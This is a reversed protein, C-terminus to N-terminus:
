VASDTAKEYLGSIAWTENARVLGGSKQNIPSAALAIGFLLRPSQITAPCDSGFFLLGISSLWVDPKKLTLAGLNSITETAHCRTPLDV